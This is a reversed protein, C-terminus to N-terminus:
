LAKEARSCSSLSTSLNLSEIIFSHVLYSAGLPLMTQPSEGACAILWLFTAISDMQLNVHQQQCFSLIDASVDTSVILVVDGSYHVRLPAVFTVFRLLKYGIAGAIVATWIEEVEAM